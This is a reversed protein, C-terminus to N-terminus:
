RTCRHKLENHLDNYLRNAFDEINNQKEMTDILMNLAIFAGAYFSQSVEKHQVTHVNDGYCKSVYNACEDKIGDM